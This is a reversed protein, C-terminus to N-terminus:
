ISPAWCKQNKYLCNRYNLILPEFIIEVAELQTTQQVLELWLFASPSKVRKLRYGPIKVGTILSDKPWNFAGQADSVSIVQRSSGLILVGPINSTDGNQLEFCRGRQTQQANSYVAFLLLFFILTKRM